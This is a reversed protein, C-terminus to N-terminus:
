GNKRVIIYPSAGSMQTPNAYLSLGRRSLDRRLAEPTGAYRFAIVARGPSLSKVQVNNVGSVLSLSQKI